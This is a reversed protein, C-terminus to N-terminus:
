LFYMGIEANSDFLRQGNVLLIGEQTYVSYALTYTDDDFYDYVVVYKAVSVFKSKVQELLENM